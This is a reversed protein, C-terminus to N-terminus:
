GGPWWGLSRDFQYGNSGHSDGEVNMLKLKALFNQHFRSLKGWFMMEIRLVLLVIIEHYIGYIIIERKKAIGM